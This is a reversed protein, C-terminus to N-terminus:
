NNYDNLTLQNNYSSHYLSLKKKYYQNINRKASLFNRNIDEHIMIIKNEYRSMQNQLKLANNVRSNSEFLCTRNKTLFSFYYFIVDISM